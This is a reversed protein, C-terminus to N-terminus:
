PLIVLFYLSCLLDAVDVPILVISIVQATAYLAITRHCPRLSTQLLSGVHSHQVSYLVTLLLFNVAGKFTIILNAPAPHCVLQFM